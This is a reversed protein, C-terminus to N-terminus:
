ARSPSPSQPDSGYTTTTPTSPPLSWPVSDPPLKGLPGLKRSLNQLLSLHNVRRGHSTHPSHVLLFCLRLAMRQVLQHQDSDHPGLKSKLLLLLTLTDELTQNDLNQMTDM